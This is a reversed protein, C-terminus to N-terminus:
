AGALSVISRQSFNGEEQRPCMKSLNVRTLNDKCNDNRHALNALCIELCVNQQLKEAFSVIM